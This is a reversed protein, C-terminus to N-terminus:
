PPSCGEACPPSPLLAQPHPPEADPCRMQPVQAVMLVLVSPIAWARAWIYSWAPQILEPSCGTAEILAPGFVQACASAADPQVSGTREWPARGVLTGSKCLCAHQMFAPAAAIVRTCGSWSQCLMAASRNGSTRQSPCPVQLLAQSALGCVVAATLSTALVRRAALMDEKRLADGILSCSAQTGTCRPALSQCMGMRLDWLEACRCAPMLTPACPCVRILNAPHQASSACSLSPQLQAAHHLRVLSM